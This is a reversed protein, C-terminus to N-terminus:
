ANVALPALRTMASVYAASPRGAVISRSSLMFASPKRREVSAPRENPIVSM